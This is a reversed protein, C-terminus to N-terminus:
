DHPQPTQDRNQATRLANFITDRVEPATRSKSQILVAIDTPQIRDIFGAVKDSHLPTQEWHVLCLSNDSAFANAPAGMVEDIFVGYLICESFDLQGAIATIWPRGTTAEVRALMQRVLKPDWALPSSIYDPYPPKAPPLGLLKRAVRHWAMHRPLREDIQDSGRFFRVVGDRIFMDANFSRIFEVDSDVVLVV